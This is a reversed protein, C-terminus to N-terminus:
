DWRGERVEELLAANDVYGVRAYIKERNRRAREFPDIEGKLKRRLNGIAERSGFYVKGGVSEKEILGKDHLYWLTFGLASQKAGVESALEEDRYRFVEDPHNDLYEVVRAKLSSTPQVTKEPALDDIRM